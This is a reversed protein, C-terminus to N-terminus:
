MYMGGNIHIVQGTIYDAKKSALFVVANAIDEPAGFCGLPISKKMEERIKEPIAETMATQIFGPAVANVRIGRTAYEKAITKTLGVIGAKSASYNVQGPNGTFAVVSSINIIKGYQQKVMLKIAEKSCLFTGKLNVDIVTDWDEDKMRLILADKTIGANNVLIDLRGFEKIFVEFASIIENQKSVDLKIALCKVGLEKIEKATTEANEINVDAVGINAGEKAMELAIQRGIGQAAGTILANKDKLIM